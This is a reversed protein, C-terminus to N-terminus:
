SVQVFEYVMIKDVYNTKANKGGELFITVIFINYVVNKEAFTLM